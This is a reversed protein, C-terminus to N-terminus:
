ADRLRSELYALAEKRDLLSGETQCERIDELIERFKPGPKMGRAILDKGNVFPKAETRLFKDYYYALIASATGTTDTFKAEPMAEYTAHADALSLLISEPVADKLDRCYRYLARKTPGGSGSLNLPRMHHRVLRSVVCTAENSLRFRRCISFARDAGAADHGFFHIEGEDDRSYSEAKANDHLLCAFRLAAVRPIFPELEEALHERVISEHEPVISALRSLVEDTHDVTRISHMLIDYRHHRGPAFGRLPALEPLLVELLGLSDLRLLNAGGGPVSLVQFLEDRTREPAPMAARHARVRIAEVTSGEIEFGLTAAFRAARLLRLPDADLVAPDAVRVLRRRIDEQGGFPDILSMPAGTELFGRIEMAMSNMTFDRRALDSRLDTGEFNTFDFQLLGAPAREFGQKVVVRTINRREDLFFFSGGIREAFNRAVSESSDEMLLDIDKIERIGLILDRVSGGVLYVNRPTLSSLIALSTLFSGDMATEVALAYRRIRSSV